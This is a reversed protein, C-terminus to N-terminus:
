WGIAEKVRDVRNNHTWYWRGAGESVEQKVLGKEVLPAIHRRVMSKDMDASGAIRAALATIPDDGAPIGSAYREILDEALMRYILQMRHYNDVNAYEESSCTGADYRARSAAWSDRIPRYCDEVFGSLDEPGLQSTRVVAHTADYQEWDDSLVKLDYDEIHERVTTGPFPALLHYGHDIGLEAAFVRTDALTEATEGPLGVMFSAHPLVGVARCAAVADRAQDLTIGKRVRRLMDSNGSEVGFSVADCGADRMQVLIEEDITNVRSFASWGVTLGRARIERCFDAVRRRNATFLDDAINIRTFGYDLIAEIEDVVRATSRHRVKQGVMRRGLCFICRNPCGRSTIISVPFGLAQYRSLPLLHRAPLPLSDLDRILERPETVHLNGDERFAIGAVAHWASRDGIVPLLEALTRESEGMCILDIAPNRNLTNEADFSVHPGGMMTILGPDAAKADRLIAAAAPFNMTVSTAGVVDPKFDALADRLKEPTYRSVIYDLIIVQAGAAECAAAVYCLGLPPSPAQELPYPPAILCIKM